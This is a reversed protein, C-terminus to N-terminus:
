VMKRAVMENVIFSAVHEAYSGRTFGADYGLEKALEHSIRPGGCVLVVKDRIGEAELLEVLETLNPIHVDKQTVIQSVIIADANLEIAKAVLDENPVQSGLNHAEIGKYRELGYHGNYGKMNMIADIGVTHADTGTCAGVIVVDRKINEKIFAEVAYKDMVEVDVKPVEINAYDVTHQCKGYVVFMTYGVGLDESHVVSPEELGMKLCLRRAAEEAEVGSPVPLTFSLQMMGDNLTDGYPKVKTLDIKQNAM